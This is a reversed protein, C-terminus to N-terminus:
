LLSELLINITHKTGRDGNFQGAWGLATLRQNDLSSNLMPNFARKEQIDPDEFKLKVNGYQAFLLAIDRISMVSHENSINYATNSDGDLLVKLIATACDLMYCYSRIQMGDSKMIIDKGLAADYAFASSIRNDNQTATPGYIHGPRVISIDLGMESAFSACLTEAARKSVPYCSRPNLIDIYGYEDERFPELSNKKGYIESSSIYVTKKVCSKVAYELLNLMGVFNDKMTDIPFKQVLAPYANSAGHIIYDTKFNFENNKCADYEIFKFYELDCFRSFRSRAKQEDRGAVLVTIKGNFLENYFFLLDVISSCILGTAGTILIRKRKFRELWLNNLITTKNDEIYLGSQYLNIIKNSKEM